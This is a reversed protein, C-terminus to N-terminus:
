TRRRLLELAPTIVQEPSISQLGEEHSNIAVQDPDAPDSWVGGLNRRYVTVTPTGAATAIHKPGGDNGVWVACRQYLAALQRVTTRGYRWIAEHKMARGVAEAKEEEGPGSTILILAGADALADGVRAWNAVGWQKFEHKSVPSIAVVPSSGLGHQQLAQAAWARQEDALAIELRLDATETDVGLPALLRLKQRAMYVSGKERPLLQTYALNRPGRGRLGIRVRARSVAVMRASRPVSHMDIAVDYGKRLVRWVTPLLVQDLHPNGELAQAGLASTVFDITAEPFASRAARIAPTTLLVDGLHHLQLLLIREVKRSM